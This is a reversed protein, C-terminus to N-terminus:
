GQLIQAVFHAADSLSLGMQMARNWLEARRQALPDVLLPVPRLHLPANGREWRKQNPNRAM